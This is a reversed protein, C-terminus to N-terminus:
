FTANNRVPRTQRGEISEPEYRYEHDASCAGKTRLKQQTQGSGTKTFNDNQYMESIGHSDREISAFIYTDEV